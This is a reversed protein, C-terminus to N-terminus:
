LSQLPLYGAQTAPAPSAHSPRPRRPQPPALDERQRGTKATLKTDMETPSRVTPATDRVRKGGKPIRERRSDGRM